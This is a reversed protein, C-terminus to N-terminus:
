SFAVLDPTSATAPSAPSPEESAATAREAVVAVLILVPLLWIYNPHFATGLFGLLGLSAGAALLLTPTGRRPAFAFAAGAALWTAIGLWTPWGLDYQDRLHTAVTNSRPWPDSPDMGPYTVSRAEDSLHSVVIDNWLEAPGIVFFPVFVVAVAAAARLFDPPGVGRLRWLLPLFLWLYQKAAFGLALLAPGAKSGRAWALAGLALLAAVLPETWAQELIYFTRGQVLVLAGAADAAYPALRGLQAMRRVCFAAVVLALVHAYRVDGLLGYAPAQLLLTVPPYPFFDIATGGYSYDAGYPNKGDLLAASADQSLHWVDIAPEPSQQLTWVAGLLFAATFVGFRAASVGRWERFAGVAVAALGALLLWKATAPMWARPAHYVFFSWPEDSVVLAVVIALWAVLGGALASTLRHGLGVLVAAAVLCLLGLAALGFTGTGPGHVQLYGYSHVLALSFAGAALLALLTAGRGNEPERWPRAVPLALRRAAM